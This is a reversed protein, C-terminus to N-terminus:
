NTITPSTCTLWATCGPEFCFLALHDHDWLFESEVHSLLLLRRRPIGFWAGHPDHDTQHDMRVPADDREPLLQAVRVRCTSVSCDGSVVRTHVALARDHRTAPVLTAMGAESLGCSACLLVSSQVIPERYADQFSIQRRVTGGDSCTWGIGMLVTADLGPTAHGTATAGLAAELTLGELSAADSHQPGAGTRERVAIPGSV